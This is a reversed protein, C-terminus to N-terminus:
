TLLDAIADSEAPESAAVISGAHVAERVAEDVLPLQAPTVFWRLM